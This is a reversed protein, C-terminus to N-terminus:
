NSAWITKQMLENKIDREYKYEEGEVPYTIKGPIYEAVETNRIKFEPFNRELFDAAPGSAEVFVNRLNFDDKLLQKLKASGERTRDTALGVLKRRGNLKGKYILIAKLVEDVIDVKWIASDDIMDEIDFHSKYGGLEQYASQLSDWVQEAYVRKQDKSIANQVSAETLRQKKFETEIFEELLNKLHKQKM